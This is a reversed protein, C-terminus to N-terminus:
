TLGIEPLGGGLTPNGPRFIYLGFDRDGLQSMLNRNLSPALNAVSQPLCAEMKIFLAIDNEAALMLM